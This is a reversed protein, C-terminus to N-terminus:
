IAFQTFLEEQSFNSLFDGGFNRDEQKSTKKLFLCQEKSIKLGGANVLLDDQDIKEFFLITPYCRVSLCYKIVNFWIGMSDVNADDFLTWETEPTM